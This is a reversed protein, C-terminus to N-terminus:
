LLIIRMKFAADPHLIISKEREREREQESFFDM